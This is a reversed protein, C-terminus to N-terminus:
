FSVPLTRRVLNMLPAFLRQRKGPFVAQGTMSSDLVGPTHEIQVFASLMPELAVPALDVTVYTVVATLAPVVPDDFVLRVPDGPQISNKLHAPLIVRAAFTRDNIVRLVVAPDQSYRTLVGGIPSIVWRESLKRRILALEHEATELEARAAAIVGPAAQMRSVTLGAQAVAVEQQLRVFEAQVELLEVSSCLGRAAMIQWRELLPVYMLLNTQALVLSERSQEIQAQLEGDTLMDLEGQLRKTEAELEKERSVDTISFIEMVAMGATVATGESLGPMMKVRVVDEDAFRYVSCERAAQRLGPAHLAVLEAPRDQRVIFQETEDLIFIGSVSRTRLWVLSCLLGAFVLALIIFRRIRGDM